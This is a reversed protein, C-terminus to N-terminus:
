KNKLALLFLTVVGVSNGEKDASLAGAIFVLEQTKVRAIQCYQGLPVGLSPPNYIKIENM